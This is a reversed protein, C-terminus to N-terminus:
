PGLITPTVASWARGGDSTQLLGAEGGESGYAWGVEPTLFELILGAVSTSRLNIWTRGADTTAFLNGSTDLLWGDDANIFYSSQPTMLPTGRRTWSSGGDITVFLSAVTGQDGVYGLVFGDRTNVFQPLAITYGNDQQGLGLPQARWTVGGDSTEYFFPMGGNCQGTDWGTSASVFVVPNKDCGAPLKGTAPLPRINSLDVAQWHLGGDITRYVYIASSGAAALGTISFWGDDRGVYDLTEPPEYEVAYGTLIGGKTWTLGGDNTAWSQIAATTNVDLASSQATMLRAADADVFDVAIIVQGDFVPSAVTWRTIGQTTHLIAGDSQRQAWGVTQSFMRLNTISDAASATPSPPTIVVPTPTARGTPLPPVTPTPRSSQSRLVSTGALILGAVVAVTAFMVGANRTLTRPHLDFARTPEQESVAILRRTLRRADADFSDTTNSV